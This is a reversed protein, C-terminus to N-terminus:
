KEEDLFFFFLTSLYSSVLFIDSQSVTTKRLRWGFADAIFVSPAILWTRIFRIHENEVGGRFHFALVCDAIKIHRKVNKKVKTKEGRIDVNPEGCLNLLQFMVFIYAFYKEPEVEISRSHAWLELKFQIQKGWRFRYEGYISQNTPAQVLLCCAAGWFVVFSSRSVSSSLCLFIGTSTPLSM